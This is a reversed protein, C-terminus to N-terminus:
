ELPLEVTNSRGYKVDLNTITPTNTFIYDKHEYTTVSEEVVTTTESVVRGDKDFKKKTTTTKKTTTKPQTYGTTGYSVLGNNKPTTVGLDRGHPFDDIAMHLM